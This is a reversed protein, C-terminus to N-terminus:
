LVLGTYKSIYKNGIVVVECLAAVKTDNGGKQLVSIYRGIAPCSVNFIAGGGVADSQCEVHEDRQSSNGVKIIFTNQLKDDSIM